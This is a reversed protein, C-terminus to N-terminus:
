RMRLANSIENVIFHACACEPSDFEACHGTQTSGVVYRGNKWQIQWGSVLRRDTSWRLWQEILCRNTGLHAALSAEALLYPRDRIGSENILDLFSKAGKFFELPLRCLADLVAEAPDSLTAQSLPM